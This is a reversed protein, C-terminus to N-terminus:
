AVLDPALEVDDGQRVAILVLDPTSYQLAFDADVDGFLALHYDDLAGRAGDAAVLDGLAARADAPVLALLLRLVRQRVAVDLAGLRLGTRAIHPDGAALAARADPDLDAVLAAVEAAFAEGPTSQNAGPTASVRAVSASAPAGAAPGVALGGALALAALVGVVRRVASTHRRTAAVDPSSM